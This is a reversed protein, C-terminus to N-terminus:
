GDTTHVSSYYIYDPIGIEYIEACSYVKVAALLFVYGVTKELIKRKFSILWLKHTNGNVGLEKTRAELDQKLIEVWDIELLSEKITSEDKLVNQSQLLYGKM